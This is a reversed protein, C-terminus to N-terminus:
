KITITSGNVPIGSWIRSMTGSNNVYIIIEAGHTLPRSDAMPAGYPIFANTSISTSSPSPTNSGRQVPYCRTYLSSAITIGGANQSFTITITKGSNAQVMVNSSSRAGGINNSATYRDTTGNSTTGNDIITHQPSIWSAPQTRWSWPNRGKVTTGETWYSKTNVTFSGGTCGFKPSATNVSFVDTRGALQAARSTGANNSENQRYQVDSSRASGSNVAFVYHGVETPSQHSGSTTTKYSLWSPISVHSWSVYQQEETNRVSYNMIVHNNRYVNAASPFSYTTVSRKKMSTTSVNGTTGGSASFGNSIVTPTRAYTYNWSGSSHSPATGGITVTYYSDGNTISAEFYGISNITGKYVGDFYVNKGKCDSYVKYIYVPPNYKDQSMNLRMSKGSAAQVWNDYDSRIDGSNSDCTLAWNTAYDGYNSSSKSVWSPDDYQWSASHRRYSGYSWSSYTPTGYNPGSYNMTVSSDRRVVNDNPATYSYPDYKTRTVTRIASHVNNLYQTGGSYGFNCNYPGDSMSYDYTTETSTNQGGGPVGGTIRINYTEDGGLREFIFKGSRITGSSVNNIYVTGGECNSNVTYTYISGIISSRRRM